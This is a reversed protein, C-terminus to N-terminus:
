SKHATRVLEGGECGLVVGDPSRYTVTYSRDINGWHVVALWVGEGVQAPYARGAGIAVTVGTVGTPMRGAIACTEFPESSTAQLDSLPGANLDGAGGYAVLWLDGTRHHRVVAYKESGSEASVLERSLAIDHRVSV